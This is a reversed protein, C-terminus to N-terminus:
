PRGLLYISDFSIPRYSALLSISFRRDLCNEIYMILEYVGLSDVYGLAYIDGAWEVEKEQFDRCHKTSLFALVCSRFSVIDIDM